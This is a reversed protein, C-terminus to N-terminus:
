FPPLYGVLVVQRDAVVDEARRGHGHHAVVKVLQGLNAIRCGRKRHAKIPGRELFHLWYPVRRSQHEAQARRLEGVLEDVDGLDGGDREADATYEFVTGYAFLLLGIGCHSQEHINPEHDAEECAPSDGGVMRDLLQEHERWVKGLDGLCHKHSEREDVHEPRRLNALDGVLDQDLWEELTLAARLIFFCLLAPLDLCALVRLESLSPLASLSTPTFSVLLAQQLLHEQM